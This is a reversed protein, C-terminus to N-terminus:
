VTGGNSFQPIKAAAQRNGYIEPLLGYLRKEISTIQHYEGQVEYQPIPEIGGAMLDLYRSILQGPRQGLRVQEAECIQELIERTDPHVTLTVRHKVKDRRLSFRNTQISENQSM